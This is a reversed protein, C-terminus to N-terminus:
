SKKPEEDDSFDLLNFVSDEQKPQSSKESLPAQVLRTQQRQEAHTKLAQLSPQSPSLIQQKKLPLIGLKLAALRQDYGARVLDQIGDSM